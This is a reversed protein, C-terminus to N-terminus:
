LNELGSQFFGQPDQDSNMVSATNLSLGESTGELM